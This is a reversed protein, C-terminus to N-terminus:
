QLIYFGLAIYTRPLCETLQTGGGLGEPQKTGNMVLYSLWWAHHSLGRVRTSSVCLHSPRSDSALYSASRKGEKTRLNAKRVVHPLLGNPSFTLVPELSREVSYEDVLFFKLLVPNGPTTTTCQNVDKIGVGVDFYCDNNM